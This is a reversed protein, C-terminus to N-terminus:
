QPKACQAAMPATSSQAVSRVRRMRKQHQKLIESDAKDLRAQMDEIEQQTYKNAALAEARVRDGYQHDTTAYRWLGLSILDTLQSRLSPFFLMQGSNCGYPTMLMCSCVTQRTADVSSRRGSSHVTRPPAEAASADADAGHPGENFSHRQRAPLPVISGPVTAQPSSAQISM